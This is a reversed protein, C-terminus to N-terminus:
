AVQCTRVFGLQQDSAGLTLQKKARVGDHSQYTQQRMHEISPTCDEALLEATNRQMWFAAASLWLVRALSRVFRPASRRQVTSTM